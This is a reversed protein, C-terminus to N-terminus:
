KSGVKFTTRCMLYTVRRETRRSSILYMAYCFSRVIPVSQFQRAALELHNQGRHTTFSLVLCGYIPMLRWDQHGRTSNPM